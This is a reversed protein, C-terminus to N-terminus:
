SSTWWSDSRRRPNPGARSCQQLADYLPLDVASRLLLEAHEVMAISVFPNPIAICHLGAAHAADIGHATDEVAIAAWPAVRLRDLALQYVDPAPKPYAVEDGAALVEFQDLVNTRGLHDILWERPSSSAVAVRLGLHAAQGIWERLGDALDLSQHLENRFDVRRRHSLGQDFREGVAAALQAYRDETIDGGHNVFFTSADLELGWQRWEHEWSKLSSSETDMLLGDFDFVVAKPWVEARADRSDIPRQNM